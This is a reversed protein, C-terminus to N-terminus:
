FHNFLTCFCPVALILLYVDLAERGEERGGVKFRKKAMGEALQLLQAASM